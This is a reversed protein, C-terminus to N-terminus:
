ASVDDDEDVEWLYEELREISRNLSVTLRSAKSNPNPSLTRFNEALDTAAHYGRSAQLTRHIEELHARVVSIEDLPNM